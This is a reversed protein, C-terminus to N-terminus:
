RYFFPCTSQPPRRLPGEYLHRCTKEQRGPVFLVRFQCQDIRDRVTESPDRHSVTIRKVSRKALWHFRKDLSKSMKPCVTRNALGIAVKNDCFIVTAPQPHGLDALINREDVAIRAAAFLGGYEAEAVFSRVVPIRTSHTLHPSQHPRGRPLDDSSQEHSPHLWRRVWSATQIPLFFRRVPRLPDYRFGSLGQM